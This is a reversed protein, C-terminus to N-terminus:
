WAVLCVSLLFMLFYYRLSSLSSSTSIHAQADRELTQDLIPNEAVFQSHKERSSIEIENMNINKPTPYQLTRQLHERMEDELAEGEGPCVSLISNWYMFRDNLISELASLAPSACLHACSAVYRARFMLARCHAAEDHLMQKSSGKRQLDKKRDDEPDAATSTKMKDLLGSIFSDISLM